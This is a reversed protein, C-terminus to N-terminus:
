ATAWRCNEPSYPGDNDIRDISYKASPRLSMDALFNEFSDRWRDCVTIGRGGYRSFDKSKSNCCRDKLRNWTEYEPTARRGARAHSAGHTARMRAQEAVLARQLHGCSRTRSARLLTARIIKEKGCSCRCLYLLQKDRSHGAFAIADLEGFRQGTLDVRRFTPVSRQLHGCSRTKEARLDAAHVVTENGCDCQCRWRAMTGKGDPRVYSNAREIVTLQGLRQGTLDIFGPM